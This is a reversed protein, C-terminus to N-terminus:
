GVKQYFAEGNSAHGICAVEDYGYEVKIHDIFENVEKEEQEALYDAVAILADDVYECIGRGNVNGAIKQMTRRSIGYARRCEGFLEKKTYPYDIDNLISDIEDQQDKRIYDICAGEYYAATIVVDWHDFCSGEIRYSPFNRDSVVCDEREPVNGIEYDDDTIVVCRNQYFFNGTAM